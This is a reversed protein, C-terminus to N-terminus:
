PKGKWIEQFCARFKPERAKAPHRRRRKKEDQTVGARVCTRALQRGPRLAPDAARWACPSGGAPCDPREQCRSSFIQEGMGPSSATCRVHTRHIATTKGAIRVPNPDNESM